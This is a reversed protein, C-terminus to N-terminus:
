EYKWVLETIEQATITGSLYGNILFLHASIGKPINYKERFNIMLSPKNIYFTIYPINHKYEGNHFFSTIISKVNM